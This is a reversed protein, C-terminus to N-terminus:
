LTVQGMAFEYPLQYEKKTYHYKAIQLVEDLQSQWDLMSEDSAPFAYVQNYKDIVIFHFVVKYGALGGHNARVLREYIAAQMWYKYYEVSDRFERLTKGTTKLDNIYVVKEAHDIIYNDVIGRLGFPLGQLKCALPRENHIELLEFGVEGLRLLETVKSNAKLIMVAEKCRDLTDRDIVDKHESKKLYEFYDQSKATLVKGIRKQNGTKAGAKSLDKDDKLSQHLNNEELWKLIEDSFGSLKKDPEGQSKWEKYISEVIKKNSVGPLDGPMVIFQKDFASEDLLLCHIVKGEVLHSELGDEREKLIYWNYFLQVSHLLKNLSSYSFMFYKSYFKSLPDQTLTRIASM